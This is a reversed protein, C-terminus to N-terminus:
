FKLKKITDKTNKKNQLYMNNKIIRTKKTKSIYSKLSRNRPFTILNLVVNAQLNEVIAQM